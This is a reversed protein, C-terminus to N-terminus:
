MLNEGIKYICSQIGAKEKIKSIQEKQVELAIEGSPMLFIKLLINNQSSFMWIPSNLHVYFNLINEKILFDYFRNISYEGNIPHQSGSAHPDKDIRL